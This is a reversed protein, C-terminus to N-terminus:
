NHPVSGQRDDIRGRRPGGVPLQHEVHVGAADASRVEVGLVVTVFQGVHQVFDAVVVANAPVSWGDHPVLASRPARVGLPM